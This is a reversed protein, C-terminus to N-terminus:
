RVRRAGSAPGEARLMEIAEVLAPLGKYALIRGFFLVRFAVGRRRGVNTPAKLYRAMTDAGAKAPVTPRVDGFHLDPHFLPVLRERPVARAAALADAVSRSLTVVSDANLADRMSWGNLLSTPDGPHPHADHVVTLYRFGHKRILPAFLPTWIHPM